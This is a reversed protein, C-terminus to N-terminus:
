DQAHSPVPPQSIWHVDSLLEVVKLEMDAKMGVGHAVHGPDTITTLAATEMKKEHTKPETSGKVKPTTTVTLDSTLLEVPTVKPTPVRDMRVKGEFRMITGDKNVWASDSTGKWTNGSDDIIEYNPTTVYISGDDEKRVMRPAVITFSHKGEDDLADVTFNTLTYDSRPPGVFDHDTDRAGYLWVLAQTFLAIMALVFIITIQRREM